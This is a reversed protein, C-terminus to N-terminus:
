ITSKKREIIKLIIEELGSEQELGLIERSLATNGDRITGETWDPDTKVISGPIYKAVTAAMHSISYANQNGLNLTLSASSEGFIILSEILDEIWYYNVIANGSGYVTIPEQRLAQDVFKHIVNQYVGNDDDEGIIFYLRAIGVNASKINAMSRLYIESIAKSMGYITRPNAVDSELSAHDYNGYVYLSSTFILRCKWQLSLKLVVETAEINYAHIEPYPINENHRKIAALHYITTIKDNSFDAPLLDQVTSQIFKGGASKFDEVKPTKIHDVGIVNYGIQLLHLALRSGIFGAVGTVLVTVKESM